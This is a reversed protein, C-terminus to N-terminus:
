IGGHILTNIRDINNRTFFREVDCIADRGQKISRIILLLDDVCKDLRDNVITYDYQLAAAIEKPAAALRGKIVDPKDTDRGTLRAKLTDMDKPLVFILHAKPDNRKIELGGQVDIVLVVDYGGRRVEEVYGRPTAYDNGHVHQAELFEGNALMTDYDSKNLFFYNVGEKEGVRPARTTVSISEKLNPNREAALRFLTDKGVGSPGSLVILLGKNDM